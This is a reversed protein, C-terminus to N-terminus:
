CMLALLCARAARLTKRADAVASGARPARARALAGEGFVGFIELSQVYVSTQAMSRPM